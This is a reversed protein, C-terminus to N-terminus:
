RPTWINCWHCLWNGQKTSINCISKRLYDYTVHRIVFRIFFVIVTIAASSTSSSYCLFSALSWHQHHHHHHHYRTYHRSHHWSNIILIVVPSQAAPLIVAWRAYILCRSHCLHAHLAHSCRGRPWTRQQEARQHDVVFSLFLECLSCPCDNM